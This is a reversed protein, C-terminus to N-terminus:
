VVSKRDLVDVGEGLEHKLALELLNGAAAADGVHLDGIHAVVQLRQLIHHPEDIVVDLVGLEVGLAVVALHAPKISLDDDVIFALPLAGNAVILIMPLHIDNAPGAPVQALLEPVDTFRLLDLRAYSM